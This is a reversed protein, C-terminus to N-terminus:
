PKDILDPFYHASSEKSTTDIGVIKDAAGLIKVAECRYNGLTIIRKIPKYIIVERGLSDVITRPEGNWYAYAHAADNLDKLEPRGELMYSLVADSLESSSLKNNRDADGPIGTEASAVGLICLVTLTCLLKKM